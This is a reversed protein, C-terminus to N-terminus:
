KFPIQDVNRISFVKDYAVRSCWTLIAAFRRFEHMNSLTFHVGDANDDRGVGQVEMRGDDYVTIRGDWDPRPHLTRCETPNPKVLFTVVSLMENSQYTIFAGCGTADIEGTIPRYPATM